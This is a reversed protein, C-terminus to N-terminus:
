VELNYYVNRSVDRFFCQADSVVLEYVNEYRGGTSYKYTYIGDERHTVKDIIDDVVEDYSMPTHANKRWGRIMRRVNTKTLKVRSASYLYANTVLIRDIKLQELVPDFVERYTNYNFGLEAYARIHLMALKLFEEKGTRDFLEQLYLVSQAFTEGISIDYYHLSGYAMKIANIEKRDNDSYIM